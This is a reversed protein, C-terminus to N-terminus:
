AAQDSPAEGKAKEAELEDLLEKIYGNIRIRYEYQIEDYVEFLAQEHRRYITPLSVGPMEKAVQAFPKLEFYRKFLIDRNVQDKVSNLAKFGEETFEAFEVLATNLEEFAKGIAELGAVLEDDPSVRHGRPMGSTRIARVGYIRNMQYEVWSKGQDVAKVAHAVDLFFDHACYYKAKQIIDLAM